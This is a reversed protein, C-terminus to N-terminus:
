QKPTNDNNQKNEVLTRYNDRAEKLEFKKLKEELVFLKKEYLNREELANAIRNLVSLLSNDTQQEPRGKINIRQVNKAKPQVVNKPNDM